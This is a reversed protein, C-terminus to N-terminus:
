TRLIVQQAEFASNFSFNHALGWNIFFLVVFSFWCSYKQNSLFMLPYYSALMALPPLLIPLLMIKLGLLEVKAEWLICFVQYWIQMITLTAIMTILEQLM